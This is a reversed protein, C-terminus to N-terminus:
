ALLWGIALLHRPHWGANVLMWKVEDRGFIALYFVMVGPHRHRWAHVWVRTPERFVGDPFGSLGFMLM